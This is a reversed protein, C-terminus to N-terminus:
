ELRKFMYPNHATRYGMSEYLPRGARSAALAVLTVGERGCSEHVTDMLRRALGCRRHPPETYLNYVFAIRGCCDYPGPPWPVITIGAGAVIGALPHEVLWARYVDFAMSDEVWTRFANATADADFTTGMDTFM